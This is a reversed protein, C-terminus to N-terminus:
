FAAILAGTAIWEVATGNPRFGVLLAVGVVIVISGLTQIMSGIVHGTLVATRLIAM